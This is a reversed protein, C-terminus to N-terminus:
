REPLARLTLLNERADDAGGRLAIRTRVDDEGRHVSPTRQHVLKKQGDERVPHSSQQTLEAM